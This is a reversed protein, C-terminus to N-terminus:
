RSTNETDRIENDVIDKKGDRFDRMLSLFVSNQWKEGDEHQVTDLLRKAAESVASKTNPAPEAAAAANDNDKDNDVLYAEEDPAVAPPPGISVDRLSLNAIEPSELDTYRASAPTERSTTNANTDVTPTSAAITEADAPLSADNLQLERAIQDMAADVETMDARGHASMWHSMEEDFDAESVVHSSGVFGATPAAAAAPAPGGYMPSGFAQSFTSQSNMQMPQHQQNMQLAPSPGAMNLSSRLRQAASFRAFDAAWNTADLAPSARAQQSLEPRHHHHHHHPHPHHLPHNMLADPQRLATAHVAVRNSPDHPVGPMTSQPAANMFADFNDPGLGPQRASRFPSHRQDASRDVLRDQHHSVDRSQHDVLRKFPSPGSCSAEAM